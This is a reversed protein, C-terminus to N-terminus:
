IDERYSIFSLQIKDHRLYSRIYEIPRGTYDRGIDEFLYVPSGEPVGLLSAERKPTKVVTFKRKFFIPLCNRKNLYDYLSVQSFDLTEIDNDLIDSPLFSYEICFPENEACRVRQISFVSDTLNIRLKSNIRKLGEIKGKYILKSSPKLGQSNLKATIGRNQILGVPGYNIAKNKKNVISGKGQITVVLGEKKLLTIAKKVTERNVGLESALMRESPLIEGPLFVGSEIKDALSEKLQLYLPIQYKM